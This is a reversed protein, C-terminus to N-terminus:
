THRTYKPLRGFRRQHQKHLEEEAASPRDTVAWRVRVRSLDENARIKGGADHGLNGRVMGHRVRMLLDAAKGIVLREKEGELKAEYVGPTGDPIQVGGAGRDDAAVDEWRHWASWHLEITPLNLRETEVARVLHGIHPFRPKGGQEGESGSTTAASARRHYAEYGLGQLVRLAAKTAFQGRPLGFAVAFAQRAPYQRGGIVVAYNRVAEPEVGELAKEVGERTARVRRGKVTFHYEARDKMAHSAKRVRGPDLGCRQATGDGDTDVEFGGNPILNDPTDQGVVPSSLCLAIAIAAM